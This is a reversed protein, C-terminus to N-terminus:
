SIAEKISPPALVMHAPVVIKDPNKTQYIEAIDCVLKNSAEKRSGHDVIVIGTKNNSSCCSELRRNRDKRLKKINSTLIVKNNFILNNQLLM